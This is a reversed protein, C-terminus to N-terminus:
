PIYKEELIRRSIGLATVIPTPQLPDKKPKVNALCEESLSKEQSSTLEINKKKLIKYILTRLTDPEVEPYKPQIKVFLKDTLKGLTEIKM